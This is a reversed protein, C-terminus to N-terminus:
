PTKHRKEFCFYFKKEILLPYLDKKDNKLCINCILGGFKDRKDIEGWSITKDFWCKYKYFNRLDARMNAVIRKLKTLDRRLWIYPNKWSM